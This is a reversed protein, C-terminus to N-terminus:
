IIYNDSIETYIKKNKIRSIKDKSMRRDIIDFIEVNPTGKELLKCVIHVIDVEEMDKNNVLQGMFQIEAPSRWELNWYYNYNNDWNKPHVFLRNLELDSKTKPIFARAVLVNLPFKKKTKENTYLVVSEYNSKRKDVHPNLERNILLSFIRGFSSIVYSDEQIDLFDIKYFTEYIYKGNVRKRKVDKPDIPNICSYNSKNTEVQKRFNLM